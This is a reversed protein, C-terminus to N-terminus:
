ALTGSPIWRRVKEHVAALTMELLDLEDIKYRLYFGKTGLGHIGSAGQHHEHCLAVTLHHPARQGIGTGEKVHHVNTPTTQPSGMFVCLVCACSRVLGMWQREAANARDSM